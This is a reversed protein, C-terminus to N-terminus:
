NSTGIRATAIAASTAAHKHLRGICACCASGASCRNFVHTVVGACGGDLWFSKTLAIFGAM